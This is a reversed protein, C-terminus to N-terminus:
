YKVHYYILLHNNIYLLELLVELYMKAIYNNTTEFLSTFNIDILESM